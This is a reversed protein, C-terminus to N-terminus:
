KLSALLVPILNFLGHYLVGFIFGYKIRIFGTIYGGIFWPLIIIPMYYINKSPIDLNAVHSLGFLLISAYFIFRFNNQWFIRLYESHKKAYYFSLMGLPIATLFSLVRYIISESDGYILNVKNIFVWSMIAIAIGLYLPKFKLPLRFVSEELLPILICGILLTRLIFKDASMDSIVTNQISFIASLIGGIIGVLLFSLVLYFLVDILTKKSSQETSLNIGPHILFDFLEGVRSKSEKKAKKGIKEM